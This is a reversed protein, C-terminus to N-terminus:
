LEGARGPEVRGSECEPFRPRERQVAGQSRRRACCTVQAQNGARGRVQSARPRCHLQRPRPSHPHCHPHSQWQAVRHADPTPHRQVHRLGDRDHHPLLLQRVRDTVCDPDYHCHPHFLKGHRNCHADLEDRFHHRQRQGLALVDRIREYGTANGNGHRIAPNQYAGGHADQHAAFVHGVRHTLHAVGFPIRFRVRDPLSIYCHGGGYREGHPVSHDCHRCALTLIHSHGFFFERENDVLSHNDDYQCYGVASHLDGDIFRDPAFAHVYPLTHLHAAYGNENSNSNRNERTVHDRHGRPPYAVIHALRQSPDGDGHCDRHAFHYQIDAVDVKDAVHLVHVRDHKAHRHRHVHATDLVAVLLENDFGTDGHGRSHLHSVLRNGVGHCGQIPESIVVVVHDDQNPANVVAVADVHRKCLSAHLHPYANVNAPDREADSEPHSQPADSHHHLDRNATHLDANGHSQEFTPNVDHHFDSPHCHIHFDAHAAHADIPQETNADAGGDEHFVAANRHFQHHTDCHAFVDAHSPQVHADSDRRAADDDSDKVHIPPNGFRHADGRAVCQQIAFPPHPDLDLLAAVSHNVCHRDAPHRDPNIHPHAAYSHKHPDANAADTFADLERLAHYPLGYCERVPDYPDCHRHVVTVVSDARDHAVPPLADRVVHRLPADAVDDCVRLAAHVVAHCDGLSPDSHRHGIPLAVYLDDHSESHRHAAVSDADGDREQQASDADRDGIAVLERHHLGHPHTHLDGHTLHSHFDGHAVYLHSDFDCHAADIHSHFDGHHNRHNDTFDCNLHGYQKGLGWGVGLGCGTGEAGCRPGGDGM